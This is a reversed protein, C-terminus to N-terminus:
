FNILFGLRTRRPLSYIRSGSPRSMNYSTVNTPGSQYQQYHDEFSESSPLASQIQDRGGPTSLFGDNDAV